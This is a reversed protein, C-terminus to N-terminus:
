EHQGHAGARAAPASTSGVRLRNALSEVLDNRGIPKHLLTNLQERVLGCTIRDYGPLRAGLWHSEITMRNM